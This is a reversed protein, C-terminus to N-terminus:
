HKHKRGHHGGSNGHGRNHKRDHGDYGHYGNYGYRANHGYSSRGRYWAPNYHGRGEVIFEGYGAGPGPIYDRCVVRGNQYVYPQYVVGYPTAVPFSYVQRWVALPGYYVRGVYYPEYNGVSVQVGPPLVFNMSFGVHVGAKADTGVVFAGVVAGLVLAVRVSKKLDFDSYISM